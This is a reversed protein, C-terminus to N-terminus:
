LDSNYYVHLGVGEYFGVFSMPAGSRAEFIERCRDLAVRSIILTTSQQTLVQGMALEVFSSDVDLDIYAGFFRWSVPDSYFANTTDPALGFDADQPASATLTLRKLGNAPHEVPDSWETLLRNLSPSLVLAKYPRSSHVGLGFAILLGALASVHGLNAGGFRDEFWVAFDQRVFGHRAMSAINETTRGNIPQSASLLACHDQTQKLVDLLRM